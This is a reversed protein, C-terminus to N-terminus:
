SKLRGVLGPFGTGKPFPFGLTGGEAGLHLNLIMSLPM